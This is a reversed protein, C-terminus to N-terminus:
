IRRTDSLQDHAVSLARATAGDEDVAMDDIALEVISLLSVGDDLAAIIADSARRKTDDVM